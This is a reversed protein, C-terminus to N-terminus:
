LTDLMTDFRKVTAEYSFESAVFAAALNAKRRVAEVNQVVYRMAKAVSEPTIHAWKKNKFQPIKDVDGFVIFGSPEILTATEPTAYDQCGSYNTTVVPVGLAMAQLGPLGFGEGLTPCILCDAKKILLPIAEENLVRTEYSIPAFDKELGVERKIKDIDRQSMTIRDTKLLLHVNDSSDFERCWAEILQKVGKRDKWTGFFLFTFAESVREAKVNPYYLKTDICHPIHFIPQTVGAHRFVKENFKSPCIVANNTNLIKVWHEPPEYTEFTAFGVTKQRPRVHIQKDPIGHIIQIADPHAQKQIMGVIEAYRQSTMSIQDPNAHM